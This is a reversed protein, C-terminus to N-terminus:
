VGPAEIETPWISPLPNSGGDDLAAINEDGEIGCAVDGHGHDLALGFRFLDQLAEFIGYVLCDGTAHSRNGSLLDFDVMGLDILIKGLSIALGTSLLTAVSEGDLQRSPLRRQVFASRPQICFVGGIQFIIM